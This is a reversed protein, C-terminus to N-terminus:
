TTVAATGSGDHQQCVARGVGPVGPADLRQGGPDAGECGVPRDVRCVEVVVRGARGLGCVTGPVAGDHRDQERRGVVHSTSTGSATADIFATPPRGTDGRGRGEARVRQEEFGDPLQEGSCPTEGSRPVATTSYAAPDLSLSATAM